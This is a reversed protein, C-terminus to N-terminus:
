WPQTGTVTPNKAHAVWETFGGEFMVVDPYGLYWKLVLFVSVATRGTGCSCIITKDPTIGLDTLILRIEAEPKLRTPNEPDMLFAAPLSVAGPIHGPRRWPGQGEYWVAPRTDLLVVDEHDKIRVCEEYAIFLDVPMEVTFGSPLCEGFDQALPRSEARWQELGGDLIMVRRCGFRVLSYAVFAAEMGDGPVTVLGDKPRGESYVVITSDQEIGLTRFLVQSLEAPIWRVPIRGTHMRFLAEHVHIAGPIHATFYAHTNQRCDVIILGAQGRHAALWEPTVWSIISRSTRESPIDTM